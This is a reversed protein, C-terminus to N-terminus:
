GGTSLRCLADSLWQPIGSLNDLSIVWSNNAAIMLDREERPVARLAATSPDVLSRLVRAVTSKGTGQEGQLILIPYPGSPNLAAVLWSVMLIWNEDAGANVFDRLESIAGSVPSPLSAMGRARRFRVPPDSVIRWGTSSMEVAQWEDNALDLYVAPGVGVVRVGVDRVPGDFQARADCVALTEQLAQASPPKNEEM